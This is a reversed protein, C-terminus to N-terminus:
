YKGGQNFGCPFQWHTLHQIHNRELHCTEFSTLYIDLHRLDSKKKKKVIELACHTHQTHICWFLIDKQLYKTAISFPRRTLDRLLSKLNLQQASICQDWKLGKCISVIISEPDSNLFVNFFLCSRVPASPTGGNVSSIIFFFKEGRTRFDKAAINVITRPYSQHLIM